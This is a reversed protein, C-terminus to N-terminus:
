TAAVSPSAVFHVALYVGVVFLVRSAEFDERAEGLVDIAFEAGGIATVNLFVDSVTRRADFEEAAEPLANVSRMGDLAPFLTGRDGRFELGPELGGPLVSEGAAGSDSRGAAQQFETEAGSRFLM